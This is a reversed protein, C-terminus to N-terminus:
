EAKCISKKGLSLKNFFFFCVVFTQFKAGFSNFRYRVMITGVPIGSSIVVLRRM